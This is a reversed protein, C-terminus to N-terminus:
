VIMYTVILSSFLCSFVKESATGVISVRGLGLLVYGIGCMGSLVFGVM